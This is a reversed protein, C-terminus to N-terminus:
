VAPPAILRSSKSFTGSTRQSWTCHDSSPMEMAPQFAIRESPEAAAIVSSRAFPRPHAAPLGAIAPGVGVGHQADVLGAFIARGADVGALQRHEALVARGPSNDGAHRLLFLCM